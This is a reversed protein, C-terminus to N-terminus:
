SKDKLLDDLSTGSSSPHDIIWKGYAKAYEVADAENNFGKPPYPTFASFAQIGGDIWLKPRWLDNEAVNTKEAEARIWHGGHEFAKKDPWPSVKPTDQHRDLCKSQVGPALEEVSKVKWHYLTGSPHGDFIKQFTIRVPRDPVIDGKRVADANIDLYAVEDTESVYDMPLPQVLGEPNSTYSYEALFDRIEERSFAKTM